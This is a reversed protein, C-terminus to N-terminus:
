VCFALDKNKLGSGFYLKGASNTVASYYSFAGPYELNRIVSLQKFSDHVLGWKGPIDKSLEVGPVLSVCRLVPLLVCVNCVCMVCM